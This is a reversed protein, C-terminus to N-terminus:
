APEWNSPTGDGGYALVRVRCFDDSRACPPSMAEEVEAIPCMYDDPWMAWIDDTDAM